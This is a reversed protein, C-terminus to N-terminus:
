SQKPNKGILLNQQQVDLCDQQIMVDFNRIVQCCRSVFARIWTQIQHHEESDSVIMKQYSSSIQAQRDVEFEQLWAIAPCSTRWYNAVVMKGLYNAAFRSLKNMEDVLEDLKYEQPSNKTSVPKTHIETAAESSTAPSTPTLPKPDIKPTQPPKGYIPSQKEQRPAVERVIEVSRSMKAPRAELLIEKNEQSTPTLQTPNGLVLKFASITNFPDTQALEKIQAIALNYGTLDLSKGTLVLLALGDNLKHVFVVSESFCFEFSEFGEPVNELVQMVGLGLAHKTKELVADLKHFYPRMRRNTFAVGDIGALNLFDQIVARNM